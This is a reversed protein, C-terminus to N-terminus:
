EGSLKPLAKKGEILTVTGRPQDSVERIGELASTLGVAVEQNIALNVNLERGAQEKPTPAIRELIWTRARYHNSNNRDLADALQADVLADAHMLFRFMARTGAAAFQEREQAVLESMEETALLKRMGEYTYEHQRALEITSHGAAAQQAILAKLRESAM